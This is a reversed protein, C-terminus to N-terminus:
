GHTTHAFTHAFSPVPPASNNYIKWDIKLSSKPTIESVSTM